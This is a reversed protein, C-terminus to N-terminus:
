QAAELGDGLNFWWCDDRLCEALTAFSPSAVAALAAPLECFLKVGHVTEVYPRGLRKFIGKVVGKADCGESNRRVIGSTSLTGDDKLFPLFWNESTRDAVAFRLQKTDFGRKELEISIEAIIDDCSAQRRERDFIVYIPYFRNVLTEIQVAVFEALKEVIVHDGNCGILRVPTGPCLKEVIKKEMQGEVIFAKM